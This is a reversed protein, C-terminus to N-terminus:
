TACVKCVGDPASRLACPNVDNEIRKCTGQQLGAPIHTSIKAAKHIDRLAVTQISAPEIHTREAPASRIMSEIEGLQIVRPVPFLIRSPLLLYVGLSNFSASM